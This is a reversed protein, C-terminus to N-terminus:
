NPRGLDFQIQHPYSIERCFAVGHICHKDGNIGIVLEELIFYVHIISFFFILSNEKGKMTEGEKKKQFRM